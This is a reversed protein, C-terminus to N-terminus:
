QGSSVAEDGARQPPASAECAALAGDGRKEAVLAKARLTTFNENMALARDAWADAQELKVDNRACWSAAQAFAQWSFGALGRLETQLSAAVVAPTDVAIAIPVALKEWRLTATVGRETPDDFTYALRDQLPAERPMVTVRLADDKQDYFFSGWARSERSLIVTWEAEGPITFLAYSGAPVAAGGLKVDTSFTIKTAANAGTRWVEGYPVLAGFVKRERVSPRSYEISVGTVGVREKLSAVPSAQPFEIKKAEQAHLGSAFFFAAGSVLLTILYKM